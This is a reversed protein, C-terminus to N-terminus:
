DHSPFIVESLANNQSEFSEHLTNQGILAFIKNSGGILYLVLDLFIAAATSKVVIGQSGLM